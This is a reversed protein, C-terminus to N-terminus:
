KCVLLWSSDYDLARKKNTSGGANTNSNAVISKMEQIEKKIECNGDYVKRVDSHM